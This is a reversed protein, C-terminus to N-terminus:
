TILNGTFCTFHAHLGRTATIEITLQIVPACVLSRATVLKVQSVSVEGSVPGSDM